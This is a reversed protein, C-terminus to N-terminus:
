ECGYGDGNPDLRYEDPGVVRVKGTYGPGNGGGGICDDGVATIEPDRM